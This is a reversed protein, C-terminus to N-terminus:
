FCADPWLLINPCGDWIWLLVRSWCQFWSVLISISLVRLIGCADRLIGGPDRLVGVPDEGGDLREIDGLM